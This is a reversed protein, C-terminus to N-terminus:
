RCARCASRRAAPPANRGNRPFPSASLVAPDKLPATRFPIGGGVQLMRGAMVRGTMWLMTYYGAEKHAAAKPIAMGTGFTM